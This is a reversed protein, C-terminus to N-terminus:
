NQQIRSGKIVADGSSKVNVKGSGIITIDHGRILITGDKKMLISAAGCVLELSDVSQVVAKKSKVTLDRGVSVTQNDMVTKTSHRGIRVSGDGTVTLTDNLGVLVDRSGPIMDTM